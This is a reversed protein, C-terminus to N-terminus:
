AFCFSYIDFLDMANRPFSLFRDCWMMVDYISHEVMVNDAVYLVIEHVRDDRYPSSCCRVFVCLTALVRCFVLAIDMGYM